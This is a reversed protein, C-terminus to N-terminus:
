FDCSAIDMIATIMNLRAVIKNLAKTVDDRKAATTVESNQAGSITGVDVGTDANNDDTFDDLNTLGLALDNVKDCVTKLNTNTAHTSAASTVSALAETNKDVKTNLAAVDAATNTAKTDTASCLSSECKSSLLRNAEDVRQNVATSQLTSILVNGAAAVAAASVGALGAPFNGDFFIRRNPTQGVRHSILNDENWYEYSDQSGEAAKAAALM